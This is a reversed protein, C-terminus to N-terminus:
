PGLWIQADRAIPEDCLLASYLHRIVKSVSSLLQNRVLATAMLGCTVNNSVPDYAAMVTWHGGYTLTQVSLFRAVSLIILITM